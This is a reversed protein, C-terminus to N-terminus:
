ADTHVSPISHFKQTDSHDARSHTSANWIKAAPFIGVIQFDFSMNPPEACVRGECPGTYLHMMLLECDNMGVSIGTKTLFECWSVPHLFFTMFHLELVFM